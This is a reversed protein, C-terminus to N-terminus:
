FYKSAKEKIFEYSSLLEKEDGYDGTYVEILVSGDFGVGSLRSFLEDYNFTGKGPLCMKGADNRDSIHVTSINEGMENLFDKYDINSQYAQKIDLTGKLKPCRKKLETFFGIYNYYCWHVNEYSLTINRKDCEDIIKQTIREVRDFDIKLPTRKLRAVGNFTYNKAGIEKGADLVGNLIKFSDEQARLNVSYLQPEFQTNLTHISNVVTDGTLRKKLLKGFKKTYECYSAFFVEITDVKNQVLYSLADETFKRTFLSATSIGVLM